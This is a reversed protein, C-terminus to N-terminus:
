DSFYNDSFIFLYIFSRAIESIEALTVYHTEKNLDTKRRDTQRDTVRM